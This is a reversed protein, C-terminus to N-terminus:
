NLFLFLCMWQLVASTALLNTTETTCIGLLQSNLIFLYWATALDPLREVVETVSLSRHWRSPLSGFLLHIDCIRISGACRHAYKNVTVFHYILISNRFPHMKKELKIKYLLSYGTMFNLRFEHKSALLTVLSCTKGRGIGTKQKRFSLEPTQDICIKLLTGSFGARSYTLFHTNTYKHEEQYRFGMTHLPLLPTSHSPGRVLGTPPHCPNM